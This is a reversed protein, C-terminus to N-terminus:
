QLIFKFFITRSKLKFIKKLKKKMYYFIGTTNEEKKKVNYKNLLSNTYSQEVESNLYKKKQIYNFIGITNTNKLPIDKNNYNEINNQSKKFYM